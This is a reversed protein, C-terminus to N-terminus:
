GKYKHTDRRVPSGHGCRTIRALQQDDSGQRKRGTVRGVRRRIECQLIARDIGHVSRAAPCLGNRDALAADDVDPGVLVQLRVDPRRRADDIQFAAHQQRPKLIRVDMRDAGAELGIGAIEVAQSGGVLVDGRDLFVRIRVRLLGPDGAAAPQHGCEPRAAHRFAFQEVRDDGVAGDVERARVAVGSPDVRLRELDRADGVLRRIRRIPADIAIGLGARGDAAQLFARSLQYGLHLGRHGSGLALFRQAIRDLQQVAIADGANLISRHVFVLELGVLREIAAALEAQVHHSRDPPLAVLPELLDLVDLAQALLVGRSLDIGPGDLDHLVADHLIVGGHHQLRIQLLVPSTRPM